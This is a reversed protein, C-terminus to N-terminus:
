KLFNDFMLKLLDERGTGRLYEQLLPKISDKWILKKVDKKSLEKSYPLDWLYAHGICYDNGLIPEIAIQDNLKKLSEEIGLWQKNTESLNTQLLSISPKVEEWKFRRRMAFDFSEVSRDITNMTALIYVNNPVFFKYSKGLAIMGTEENNLQAYQTKIAGDTGRYELCYMLEGFVRGLEARNIEDIIIFHPPVVDAVKVNKDELYFIYKWHEKKELEAQHDALENITIDNWTKELDLKAIDCEWKGARICFDKFLGNQLKLQTNGAADPIPRLGEMFDEYSYSSHFQVLEVADDFCCSCNEGYLGKWIDFQLKATQKSLFTKGTGPAGYKVVQKKLNFANGMQDYIEWIFINVWYDDVGEIYIDNDKLADRLYKVLWKNREYWGLEDSNVIYGKFQLWKVVSEFKPEDVTTSFILSCAATARNTLLPNNHGVTKKWVERLLQDNEKSPALILTQVTSIFEEDNYLKDFNDDSLVSRGNSAIGNYRNDFMTKLFHWSPNDKFSTGQYCAEDKLNLNSNLELAQKVKKVDSTFTKYDHYWGQLIHKRNGILYTYLNTIQKNMPTKKQLLTVIM